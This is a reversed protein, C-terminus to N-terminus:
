LEDCVSDWPLSTLIVRDSLSGEGFSDFNSYYLPRLCLKRCKSFLRETFTAFRYGMVLESTAENISITRFIREATTIQRVFPLCSKRLYWLEETLQRIKKDVNSYDQTAYIIDCNFHGHLVFWDREAKSFSKFDRNDADLGMEEILFLSDYAKTKRFDSYSFKECGECYFDTYIHKYKSKGRKMRKLERQAMMTLMTNKGVRPVGFYCSIM